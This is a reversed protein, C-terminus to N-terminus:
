KREVKLGLLEVDYSRSKSSILLVFRSTRSSRLDFPADKHARSFSICSISKLYLELRDVTIVVASFNSSISGLKCDRILSSLIEVITVIEAGAYRPLRLRFPLRQGKFNAYPLIRAAGGDDLPSPRPGKLGLVPTRIGRPAGAPSRRFTLREGKNIGGREWVDWVLVGFLLNNDFLYLCFISLQDIGM